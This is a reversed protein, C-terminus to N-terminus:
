VKAVSPREFSLLSFVKKKFRLRRWSNSTDSTEDTAMQVARKICEWVVISWCLTMNPHQNPFPSGVSSPVLPKRVVVYMKFFCTTFRISSERALDLPSRQYEKKFSSLWDGSIIFAEWSKLNYSLTLIARNMNSFEITVGLSWLYNGQKMRTKAMSPHVQHVCLGSSDAGPGTREVGRASRSRMIFFFLFPFLYSSAM